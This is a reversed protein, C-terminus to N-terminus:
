GRWGGARDSRPWENGPASRADDGYLQGSRRGSVNRRFLGRNGGDGCDGSCLAAVGLDLAACMKAGSVEGISGGQFAGDIAVVVAAEGGILGKCIVCGDDAQPTVGQRELWPSEIRDHPGLLERATGADFLAQARERGSLEIFSKRQLFRWDTM